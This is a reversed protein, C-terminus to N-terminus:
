GGRVTRLKRPLRLDRIHERWGQELRSPPLGYATELAERVPRGGFLDRVFARFPGGPWSPQGDRLFDVLLWSMGYFENAAEQDEISGVETRLLYDFTVTEPKERLARRAASLREFAISPIFTNVVPPIRIPTTDPYSGLLIKGKKVDSLGVYEALGEDFWSPIAFNESKVCHHLFAHTCEHLMVSRALPEAYTEVDFALIGPGEFYAGVTRRAKEGLFAAFEEYQAASWFVYARVKNGGDSASTDPSIPLIARLVAFVAEFDKALIAVATREHSDSIVLFHETSSSQRYRPDILADAFRIAEEGTRSLHEAPPIEKDSAASSAFVTAALVSFLVSRARM